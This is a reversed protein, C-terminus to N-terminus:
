LSSILKMQLAVFMKPEKGFYLQGKQCLRDINTKVIVTLIGARQNAVFIVGFTVLASRLPFSLWNREYKKWAILFLFISSLKRQDISKYVM